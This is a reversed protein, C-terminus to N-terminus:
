SRRSSAPPACKRSASRPIRMCIAGSRPSNTPSLRRHPRHHAHRNDRSQRHPVHHLPRRSPRATRSSASARACGSDLAPSGYRGADRRARRLDAAKRRDARFRRPFAGLEQQGPDETRDARHRCLPVDVPRRAAGQVLRRRRPCRRHAPLGVPGHGHRPRWLLSRGRRVQRRVLKEVVFTERYPADGPIGSKGGLSLTVTAGVGAAHAAKASEPDYIVGIAARRRTAYWRACCARPTPIAAPAPITRPTPSSSRSARPNRWRWRSACATM